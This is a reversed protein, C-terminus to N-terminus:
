TSRRGKDFLLYEALRYRRKIAQPDVKSNDAAKESLFAIETLLRNIMCPKIAEQDELTLERVSAYGSMLWNNLEEWREFSIDEDSYFHGLMIALEYAIPGYMRDAFDFLYVEGHPLFQAHELYMDGHLVSETSKNRRQFDSAYRVMQRDLTKFTALEDCNFVAAYPSALLKTYADTTVELKSSYKERDPYEKLTEHMRAMTRTIELLEEAKITVAKCKRLLELRMLIVPYTRGGASFRAVSSGKTTSLVVPVHFGNRNLDQYLNVEDQVKELLRQHLFAKVIWDGCDTRLSWVHSEMGNRIITPPDILSLGYQHAVFSSIAETSPRKPLAPKEESYDTGHHRAGQINEKWLKVWRRVRWSRSPHLLTEIKM